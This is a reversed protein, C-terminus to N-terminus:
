AGVQGADGGDAQAAPFTRAADAAEKGAGSLQIVADCIAQADEQKLEGITIEDNGCLDLDKEVIRRRGAPWTIPSSGRLLAVRAFQLGAHIDHEKTKETPRRPKSTGPSYLCPIEAEVLLFDEGTLGRVVCTGGSPLTLKRRTEM